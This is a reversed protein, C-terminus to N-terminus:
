NRIREGNRKQHTTVEVLKTFEKRVQEEIIIERRFTQRDTASPKHKHRYIMVCCNNITEEDFLLEAEDPVSRKLLWYKFALMVGSHTVIFVRQNPRASRLSNLFMHVRSCVDAISEGGPPREYFRGVTDAYEQYWPFNRNLETITMNFPYGAERERLDLHSHQKPEIQKTIGWQNLILDLTERTRKYGSDFYVDCEKSKPYVTALAGGICIAQSRGVENLAIQYDPLFGTRHLEDSRVPFHGIKRVINRDTEGHRVIILEKVHPRQPRIGERDAM